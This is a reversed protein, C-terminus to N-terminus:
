KKTYLVLFLIEIDQDSRNEISHRDGDKCILTDGAELVGPQGNDTIHATGKLLYYAEFEGNHPHEGISTGPPMVARAFVRGTGFSGAEELFHTMELKGNGGRLKEHQSKRHDKAKILM